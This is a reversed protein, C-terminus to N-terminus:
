EFRLAEIPDLRSAKIAPYIGSILGVIICLVVGSLIWLWPIIFGGGVLLSTLNGILIGLVIGLLGGLQCIVIAEILFQRKISEQTAGIAKRIGIERTRETVSVLMINMLGIAAGMLTIFGIITAAITVYSINEILLNALNDSKAIEFNNEGKVPVKRIIRMLGTAEGVAVDILKPDASMVTITYSMDPRPFYQRVNDIPLIIVKDGGFGMSTGKEKLVGIVKYKGSGISIEKNVPNENKAFLTKVIEQGIIAVHNGQETETSSFNRGTELEYGSTALYNDNGGFITINPNTKKSSYKATSTFSGLVSISTTSPFKFDEVFQKAEEYKISRFKKPRKGKKGVKLTMERNRITFSNSGMSAFNSNISQKISEIATLIGVLAMIGIAIILVTLVTRLLHSRVSQLSMRINERLISM